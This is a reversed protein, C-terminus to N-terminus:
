ECGENLKKVLSEAITKDNLMAIVRGGDCIFYRWWMDVNEVVGASDHNKRDMLYYTM